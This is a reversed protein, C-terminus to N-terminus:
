ISAEFAEGVNDRHLDPMATEIDVNSSDDTSIWVKVANSYAEDQKIRDILGEVTMVGSVPYYHEDLEGDYYEVTAKM